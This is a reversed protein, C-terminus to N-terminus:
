HQRAQESLSLSVEKGTTDESHIIRRHSHGGEQTLHLISDDKEDRSFEVGMEQLWKVAKTSESVIKNVSDEHCLGAGADLTDNVHAEISDSDDLVAAIGGQAWYTSGSSLSTKSLINVQYKQALHLAATLGAAGSGIILVDSNQSKNM